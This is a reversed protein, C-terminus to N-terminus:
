WASGWLPVKVSYQTFPSIAEPLFRCSDMLQLYFTLCSTLSKFSYSHFVLSFSTQHLLIYSHDEQFLCLSYIDHSRGSIVEVASSRRLLWISLIVRRTAMLKKLQEISPLLVLLSPYSLHLSCLKSLMFKEGCNIHNCGGLKDIASSLVFGTMHHWKPIVSIFNIRNSEKWWEPFFQRRSLYRSDTKESWLETMVAM